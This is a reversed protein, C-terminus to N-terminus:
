NTLSAKEIEVCEKMVFFETGDWLKIEWMDTGLDYTKYSVVDVEDGKAYYSEELFYPSKNLMLDTDRLFIMKVTRM